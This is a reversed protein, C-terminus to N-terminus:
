LDLNNVTREIFGESLNQSVDPTNIQASVNPTNISSQQRGLQRPVVASGSLLDAEKQSRKTGPRGGGRAPSSTRDPPPLHLDMSGSLIKGSLSEMEEDLSNTGAAVSPQHTENMILNVVLDYSNLESQMQDYHHSTATTGINMNSFGEHSEPSLPTTSLYNTHHGSSGGSSNGDYSSGGGVQQQQQESYASFEPSYGGATNSYSISPPNYYDPQSINPTYRQQQQHQHQYSTYPPINLLDVPLSSVVTAQQQQQRVNGLVLSNGQLTVQSYPEPKVRGVKPSAQPIGLETEEKVDSNVSDVSDRDRPRGMGYHQIFSSSSSTPLYYFDQPESEERNAKELKVWVRVEELVQGDKYRPTKFAIAYQKHVDSPNFDAYAEWGMDDYFKVKIDDRSVRECLLIIKKGGSAPSSTDSIDMIQLERKAKADFIPESCVPDMVGTFKGPVDKEYFVQFCLRVANLDITQPNNAHDFGQRYPDVRIEKRQQLAEAIDKRRVCQVGLHQFEATMTDPNINITCVGKKCGDRGVTAPSVLNHPHAKPPSTDHTVCSVVVVAPGKYGHVQIKPFTKQDPTSRAGQLAGAGRGECQYRFRLSNSKPQELIEVWPKDMKRAVPTPKLIVRQPSSSPGFGNIMDQIDITPALNITLGTLQSVSAGISPEPDVKISSVPELTDVLQNNITDPETAFHKLISSLQGSDFSLTPIELEKSQIASM